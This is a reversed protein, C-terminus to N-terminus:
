RRARAGRAIRSSPHEGASVFLRSRLFFQGHVAWNESRLQGFTEGLLLRFNRSTHGADLPAACRPSSTALIMMMARARADGVKPYARCSHRLHPSLRAHSSIHQRVEDADSFYGDM